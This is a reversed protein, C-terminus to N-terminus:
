GGQITLQNLQHRWMARGATVLLMLWLLQVSINLAWEGAAQAHLYM